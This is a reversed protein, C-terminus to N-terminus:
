RQCQEIERVFADADIKGSVFREVPGWEALLDTDSIKPMVVVDGDRLMVNESAHGHELFAVLDCVIVRGSRIVLVQNPCGGRLMKGARAIAFNLSLERDSEQVGPSRVYGCVRVRLSAPALVAVSVRPQIFRRAAVLRISDAVQMLTRDATPIQTGFVEIQEDELIMVRRTEDEITIRLTDGIKLRHTGDELWRENAAAIAEVSPGPRVIKGKLGPHRALVAEPEYPTLAVYGACGWLLLILPTLYRARM